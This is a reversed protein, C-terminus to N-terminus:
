SSDPGSGGSAIGAVSCSESIARSSRRAGTLSTACIPATIPRSKERSSSAATDGSDSGLQVIGEFLQDAGLQDEAAARRGLRGVAELVGQDLVRGVLREELRPALLQMGPDGLHQFLPERVDGLGPRLHQSPMQGVRAQRLPRNGIPAAGALQGSSARGIQFRDGVQAFPNSSISVRGSEAARMSSSNASRM